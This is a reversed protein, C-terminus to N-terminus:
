HGRKVHVCRAPWGTCPRHTLAGAPADGICVACSPPVDWVWVCVRVRPGGREPVRVRVQGYKSTIPEPITHGNYRPVPYLNRCARQYAKQVADNVEAAKGQGWGLVGNGNGVVVM